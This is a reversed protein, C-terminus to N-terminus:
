TQKNQSICWVARIQLFNNSKSKISPGIGDKCHLHEEKLSYRLELWLLFIKICQLVKLPKGM